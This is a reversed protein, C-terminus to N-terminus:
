CQHYCYYGPDGEGYENIVTIHFNLFWGQPVGDSSMPLRYDWYGGDFIADEKRVIAILKYILSPDDGFNETDQARYVRFGIREEYFGNPIGWVLDFSSHGYPIDPIPGTRDPMPWLEGMGITITESAGPALDKTTIGGMNRMHDNDYAVVTFVRKPGSPIEVTIVGTELPIDRTIVDMGPGEITLDLRDIYEFTPPGAQLKTSLSFFAILRDVVSPKEAKATINGISVTVTAMDGGACGTVLLAGFLCICIISSSFLSRVAYPM